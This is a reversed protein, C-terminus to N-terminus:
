RSGPRHYETPEDPVVEKVHITVKTGRGPSSCLAISGGCEEVIERVYGMGLGTSGHSSFGAEWVHALDKEAIGCGNDSVTIVIDGDLADIGIHIKGKESDVANVANNILNVLARSFTIKNVCLLRGQARNELTIRDKSRQSTVQFLSYDFLAETTMPRLRDTELIQSIMEGMSEASDTIRQQYERIKEDESLMQTVGALAEITTLPTKLDHVLHRIEFDKRAELAQIRAASLEQASRLLRHQDTLLRSLIVAMSLFILMQSVCFITLVNHRDFYEALLKIDTSVAGRGFGYASFPPILDLFQVGILACILVASRKYTRVTELNFGDLMYIMLIVLLSPIGFDYRIAYILPTLRYSVIIILIVMGRFIWRNKQFIASCFLYSGLYIPLARLSNLIVLLFACVMLLGVDRAAAAENLLGYIRFSRVNVFLPLIMGLLLLFAGMPTSSRQATPMEM